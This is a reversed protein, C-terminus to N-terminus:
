YEHPLLFTTSSRDAETIIWIRVERGSDMTVNYASLLRAEELLARRNAAKDEACINGWDGSWHRLLLALLDVKLALVAPTAVVHGLSFLPTRM